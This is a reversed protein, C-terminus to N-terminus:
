HESDSAALLESFGQHKKFPCCTAGALYYIPNRQAGARAHAANKNWRCKRVLACKYMQICELAYTGEMQLETQIAMNIEWAGACLQMYYFGDTVARSTVLCKLLSSSESRVSMIAYPFVEWSMQSKIWRKLMTDWFAIGLLCAACLSSCWCSPIPASLRLLSPVFFFDTEM